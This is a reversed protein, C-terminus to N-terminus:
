NYVACRQNVISAKVLPVKKFSSQGTHSLCHPVKLGLFSSWNLLERKLPLLVLGPINQSSVWRGQGERLSERTRYFTSNEREVKLSEENIFTKGVAAAQIFHETIKGKM